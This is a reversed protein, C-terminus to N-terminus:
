PGQAIGGEPSNGMSTVRGAWRSTCESSQSDSVNPRSGENIAFGPGNGYLISTYTKGDSAAEPALGAPLLPGTIAGGCNQLARQTSFGPM